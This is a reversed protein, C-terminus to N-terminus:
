EHLQADQFNLESLVANWIDMPDALPHVRAHGTKSLMVPETDYDDRWLASAYWEIEGLTVRCTIVVNTWM